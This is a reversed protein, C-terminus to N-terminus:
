WTTQGLRAESVSQTHGVDTRATLDGDGAAAPTTVSYYLCLAAIAQM